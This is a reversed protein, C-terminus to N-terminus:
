RPDVRASSAGIHLAGGKSFVQTTCIADHRQAVGLGGHMLPLHFLPSTANRRQPFSPSHPEHLIGEVSPVLVDTLWQPKIQLYWDDLYAFVKAGDDLLRCLDALVFRFVPDPPVWQGVGSNANIKTYATSLPALTGNPSSLLSTWTLTSLM